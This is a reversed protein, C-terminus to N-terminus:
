YEGGSANQPKGGKTNITGGLYIFNTVDEMEEGTATIAQTNNANIIMVKTKIANINLGTSKALRVLNNVKTQMQERSSTLLAIDDAYDIDHLKSTVNWLIGTTDDTSAKKIIWDIVLLSFFGSKNCGQKVLSKIKFWESTGSGTIVACESNDYLCRVLRICKDLIGYHKMTKWLTDRHVSDFVKEFDIFYTYLDSIWEIVQELVNRATEAESALKDLSSRKDKRTSRKVCKDKENCQQRAKYKM